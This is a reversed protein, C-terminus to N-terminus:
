VFQYHAADSAVPDGARRPSCPLLGARAARACSRTFAARARSCTRARSSPSRLARAGRTRAIASRPKCPKARAARTVSLRSQLGLVVRACLAGGLLLVAVDVLTPLTWLRSSAGSAGGEGRQRRHHAIADHLPAFSEYNFLSVLLLRSLTSLALRARAAAPSARAARAAAAAPTSSARHACLFLLGGAISASAILLQSNNLQNYLVPQAVLWAVLLACTPLVARGLVLLVACPLQVMASLALALRIAGLARASTGFHLALIKVQTRWQTLVRAGDEAFTSALLVRGLLDLAGLLARSSAGAHLWEVRRTAAGSSVGLGLGLIAVLILAGETMTASAEDDDLELAAFAVSPPPAPRAANPETRGSVLRRLTGGHTANVMLAPIHPRVHVDAHIDMHVPEDDSNIVIAVGGGARQVSLVKIDFTCQGREVLVAAGAPVAGIPECASRPQALALPRRAGGVEPVPSFVSTLGWLEFDPELAVAATEDHAPSVRLVTDFSGRAPAVVLLLMATRVRCNM